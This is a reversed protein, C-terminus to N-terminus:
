QCRFFLYDVALCFLALYSDITLMSIMLLLTINKKRSFIHILWIAAAIVSSCVFGIAAAIVQKSRWLFLLDSRTQRVDDILNQYSDVKTIYIYQQDDQKESDSTITTFISRGDELPFDARISFTSDSRGISYYSFITRVYGTSGAPLLVTCDDEDNSPDDDIKVEIVRDLDIITVDESLSIQKSYMLDVDHKYRIRANIVCLLSFFVVMLIIAILLPISKRGNNKM